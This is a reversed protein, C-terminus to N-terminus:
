ATDLELSAKEAPYLDSSHMRIQTATASSQRGGHDGDTVEGDAEQM